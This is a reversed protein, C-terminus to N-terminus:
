QWLTQCSMQAFSFPSVSVHMNNAPLHFYNISQDPHSKRALPNSENNEDLLVSVAIKHNPFHGSFSNDQLDIVGESQVYRVLYANLDRDPNYRGNTSRPSSPDQPNRQSKDNTRGKGFRWKRVAVIGDESKYLDCDKWAKMSKDLNIILPSDERDQQLIHRLYKIRRLESEILDRHEKKLTKFYQERRCFELCGLYHLTKDSIGDEGHEEASLCTPIIDHDGM